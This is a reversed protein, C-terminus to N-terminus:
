DGLARPCVLAFRAGGEREVTLKGRLQRTLSRVLQLGLTSARAPNIELPLGPGSDAVAIRVTDGESGVEVLVDCGPGSAGPARPDGKPRMGYKFANTVLENLILGLPVAVEITVEAPALRLEIRATPALTLRLTETLTRAYEGLDIRALSDVGYLQQHILAMSRVRFVSEELMARTKDSPMHESQLMLLSSIIQLNNKVRHHIEKLLTEKEELSRTLALEMRHRETLDRVSFITSRAASPSTSAVSVESSFESGDPGYAARRFLQAPVAAAGQTATPVVAGLLEGGGELLRDLPAGDVDGFMAQARANAARVHGDADVVLLGDPSHEFVSRFARRSVDQQVFAAFQEAVRELISALIANTPHDFISGIEIVGIVGDPGRVPAACLTRVGAALAVDLRRSRGGDVRVSRSIDDIFAVKGTGWVLGPLGVDASHERGAEFPLERSRALYDPGAPGIGPAVAGAVYVLRGLLPDVLWVQAARMDIAAVIEAVLCAGGAEVSDASLLLAAVRQTLVERQETLRQATVDSELAIFGSPEGREDVTVRAEIQVWYERGAKSYNLVEVEFPQRARVWERMKDITERSSKPGQLFAGPRRGVVEDLRWGTLRVFGDNVWEIHGDRDTIIVANSTRSAVEALRKSQQNALRAEARARIHQQLASAHNVFAAYIPVFSADFTPFFPQKAVSVGAVLAYPRGEDGHDRVGGVLLLAAPRGAITTRTTSPVLATRQALAERALAGLATLEDATVDGVCCTACVSVVAGDLRLLMAYETSFTTVVEEAALRWFPELADIGLARESFRLFGDGAQHERDLRARCDILQQQTTLLHAILARHQEDSSM